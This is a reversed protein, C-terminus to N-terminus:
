RPAATSAGRALREDIEADTVLGREVVLRRMAVLWREYYGLERYEAESLSEIARRLADVTFQGRVPHTLLKLMADVRQEFLSREHEALDIPGAPRGGLDHPGRTM